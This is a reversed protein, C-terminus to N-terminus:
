NVILFENSYIISYKNKSDDWAASSVRYTGNLAELKTELNNKYDCTILDQSWIFIKQEEPKIMDEYNCKEYCKKECRWVPEISIWNNNIKQEILGVGYNKGLNRISSVMIESDIKERLPNPTFNELYIKVNEGKKYIKKDTRINLKEAQAPNIKYYSNNRVEKGLSIIFFLVIVIAVFFVLFIDFIKLAKKLKESKEFIDFM